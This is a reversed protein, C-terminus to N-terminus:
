LSEIYKKYEEETPSKYQSDVTNILRKPGGYGKITHAIICHPKKYQKKLVPILKGFDHGDVESLVFGFAKWKDAFPELDLVDKTRGYGQLKNYDIIVVLNNLNHHGAFLAAEWTTGEDCEGDSLVAFIRPSNHPILLSTHTQMQIKRTGSLENSMEAARMKLAFAMGTAMSLGHGLSGASVEVGPVCGRVTHGPLKGDDQEYGSLLEEPFFGYQALTAYQAKADHAKSFVIRDRSPDDPNQPTVRACAGYLAVLIEVVSLSGGMHASKARYSMEIIRRRVAKADSSLTAHVQKANMVKQFDIALGQM